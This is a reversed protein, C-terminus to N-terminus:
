PADGVSVVTFGDTEPAFYKKHMWFAVNVLGILAPVEILPFLIGQNRGEGTVYATLIIDESRRPCRRM